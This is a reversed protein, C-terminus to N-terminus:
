LEKAQQHVTVIVYLLFVTPMWKRSRKWNFITLISLIWSYGVIARLVSPRSCLHNNAVRRMPADKDREFPNVLFTLQADVIHICAHIVPVSGLTLHSRKLQHNNTRNESKSKNFKCEIGNRISEFPNWEDSLQISKM